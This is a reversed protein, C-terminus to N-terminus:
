IIMSRLKKISRILLVVIYTGLSSYKSFLLLLNEKINLRNRSNYVLIDAYLSRYSSIEQITNSNEILLSKIRLKFINFSDWIDEKLGHSELEPEILLVLDLMNQKSANSLGACYSNLNGQFYHYYPRSIHKITKACLLIKHLVSIDELMNLGKIYHIDNTSFISRRILRLCTGGHAKGLFINQLCEIPSNGISQSVITTKKKYEVYYDCSVVDITSGESALYLMEVMDLEIWDDSDVTLLYEGNAERLATERACALGKNKEHSIVRIQTKLQPYEEILDYLVRLSDDTSCDDVFIYEISEALTQNFLSIACRKIYAEVNYVPVLISVKYKNMSNQNNYQDM